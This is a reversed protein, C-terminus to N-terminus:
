YVGTLQLLIHLVAVVAQAVEVMRLVDMVAAMTFIALHAEDGKICTERVELVYM